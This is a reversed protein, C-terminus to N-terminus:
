KPGMEKRWEPWGGRLVDVPSLGADRLRAAVEKSAKCGGGDCYVVVRRSPTWQQILEPLLADWDDENLLLAGPIHAQDFDRRPRADVWLAVPGLDAAQRPTITGDTQVSVAEKPAMIWAGAAPLTALAALMVAQRVAKGFGSM